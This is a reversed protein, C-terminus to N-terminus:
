SALVNFDLRHSLVRQLYVGSASTGPALLADSLSNLHALQGANTEGAALDALYRNYAFTVGAVPLASLSLCNSNNPNLM